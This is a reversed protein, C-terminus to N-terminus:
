PKLVVLGSAADTGRPITGPYEHIVLELTPRVTAEVLHGGITTGDRRGLVVHAHLHQAGNAEERSLNAVFSAVEVQEPFDNEVFSGGDVDFYALRSGHFGGLGTIVCTALDLRTALELISAVAQDGVELAVVITRRGVDEELIRYRM